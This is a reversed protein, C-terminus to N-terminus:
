LSLLFVAQRLQQLYQLDLIDRGCSCIDCDPHNSKSAQHAM